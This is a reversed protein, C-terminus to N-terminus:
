ALIPRFHGLYVYQTTVHFVFAPAACYCLVAGFLVQMTSLLVVAFLVTSCEVVCGHESLDSLVLGGLVMCLLVAGVLLTSCLVM